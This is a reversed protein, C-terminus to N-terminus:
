SINDNNDIIYNSVGNDYSDHNIHIDNDAHRQRSGHNGFNNEAHDHTNHEIDHHDNDDSNRLMTTLKTM